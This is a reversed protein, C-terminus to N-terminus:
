EYEGIDTGHFDLVAQRIADHARRHPESGFPNRKQVAQSEAIIRDFQQKYIKPLFPKRKMTLRVRSEM